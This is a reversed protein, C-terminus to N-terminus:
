VNVTLAVLATPTLGTDFADFLTVGFANAGLRTRATSSAPPLEAVIMPRTLPAGGPAETWVTTVALQLAPTDLPGTVGTPNATDADCFM